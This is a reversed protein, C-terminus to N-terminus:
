SGEREVLPRGRWVHRRRLASRWLAGAALTDCLPSLWYTWPRRSYARATGALVGLRAIALASNVAFLLRPRRGRALAAAALPLPLAQVLAVEVWGLVTAFGAFRDRLPLSRPWNAWTDSWGEYMRVTVLDEAEYFGVREGAAVLARAFTIDECRSDRGVRFGDTATLVDRHVLMCQGNAQVAQVDHAVGGPIGFRYVLTTLLAPHALAEALSWVEQRTAVSLVRLRAQEAFATLAHALAPSPRVDADLTLIWAADAPVHEWGRQLGWPKGNWGAPVPSADVLRVRADRQAYAGVLAQTGDTSGGDVILIATLAPGHATLGDLCPVLRRAENLVPVVAAVREVPQRDRAAAARIVPGGATRALRWFVRGALLLQAAILAGTLWRSM